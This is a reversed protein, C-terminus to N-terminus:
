RTPTNMLWQHIDWRRGWRDVHSGTYLPDGMSTIRVGIDSSTVKREYKIGKVIHDM